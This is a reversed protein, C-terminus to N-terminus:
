ALARHLADSLRIWAAEDAPLGFRLSPIVEFRRVWVGLRAMKDQLVEARRDQAWAYMGTHPASLGHSQLLDGLRMGAAALDTRTRHQWVTDLLAARVVARAPGSLSWPGRWARLTNLCAENALVFSTRAGALGFFKGISRLVILGEVGTHGAISAEPSADMFAEDVILTGGREYLQRQWGLLTEPSFMEATPNNPNVILLHKLHSPLPQDARLLFPRASADDANRKLVTNGTTDAAPGSVFHEVQFGARAFAPAYEGYTLRSIGIPGQPLFDPLMRIAAQTGPVALALAAGYYSAALQELGDDDDPLRLWLGPDIAPVPYGHPNIGTSLDIWNERGIGYRRVAEGLNGGHYVPAHPKLNLM